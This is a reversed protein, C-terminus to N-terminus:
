GDLSHLSLLMKSNLTNKLQHWILQLYHFLNIFSRGMSLGRGTSKSLRGKSLTIQLWYQINSPIGPINSPMGRFTQRCEGSHKAVNGSINWSMGLFTQCCERSHKLVNGPINLSMVRFTQFCEGFHKLVNGPINPLM